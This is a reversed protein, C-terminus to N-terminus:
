EHLRAAGGAQEGAGAGCTQDSYVARYSGAISRLPLDEAKGPGVCAFASAALNSAAVRVWRDASNNQVRYQQRAEDFTVTVQQCAAGECEAPPSSVARAAPTGAACCAALVCTLALAATARKSGNINM